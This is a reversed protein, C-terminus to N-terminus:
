DDTSGEYKNETEPPELEGFQRGIIRFFGPMAIFLIILGRLVAVLERPVNTAFEISVSGSKLVGFLLAAPLVGVPNNGALISVTIGDFGYGPMGPSWGSYIMMAWIGGGIGGLAGSLTMSSIVTMNSNIGSYEAAKSQLGSIRFAYGLRTYRLLAFVGIVFLVGIALALISFNSQEALFMPQFTASAPLPSTETINSDPNQFYTTVIVFAFNAAVFNLMITTIVENADGYAKLIGPLMGWIGGAVAGVFLGFPLLVVAGVVGNPVYTSAALLTVTAGLSGFVMQGQVGINFLGARFSIAVALGTFVLVTTERLTLALSGASSLPEIFLMRLTLVPDYCLTRGGIIMWPDGCTAPLGSVILIILSVLVSFVLASASILITNVRSINM